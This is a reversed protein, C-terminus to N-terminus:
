LGQSRKIERGRKTCLIIEICPHDLGLHPDIEALWPFCEFLGALAELPEIEQRQVSRLAAEIAFTIHPQLKM